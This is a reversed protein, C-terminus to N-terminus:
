REWISVSRCFLQTGRHAALLLGPVHQPTGAAGATIGQVLPESSRM